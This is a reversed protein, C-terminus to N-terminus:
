LTLFTTQFIQRAKNQSEGKKVKNGVFKEVHNESNVKWSNNTQFTKKEM